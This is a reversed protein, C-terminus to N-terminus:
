IANLFAPFFVCTEHVKNKIGFKGFTKVRGFDEESWEVDRRFDLGDEQAPHFCWLPFVLAGCDGKFTWGKLGWISLMGKKIKIKKNWARLHSFHRCLECCSTVSDLSLQSLLSSLTLMAKSGGEHQKQSSFTDFCGLARSLQESSFVFNLEM